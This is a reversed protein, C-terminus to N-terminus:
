VHVYQMQIYTIVIYLTTLIGNTDFASYLNSKNNNNNNNNNNKVPPLAFGAGTLIAHVGPQADPVPQLVVGAGTPIAHVGPQADFSCTSSFCRYKYPYCPCWASVDPVPPLVVGTLFVHVGSQCM